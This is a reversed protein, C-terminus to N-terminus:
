FLPTFEPGINFKEDGSIVSGTLPLGLYEKTPDLPAQKEIVSAVWNAAFRPLFEPIKHESQFIVFKSAKVAAPVETWFDELVYRPIYQDSGALVLHLSKAPFMQAFSAAKWQRIGQVMRFTAELKLPQELVIPEASPYTTYILQRLFYDYLEDDTAPNFPFQIRTWAIQQKIWTDQSRLAETFPALAFVNDVRNPYLGAFALAIGGGYSLGVLNLKEPLGLELTLQNLDDVQNRYSIPGKALGFRRLTEGMGNMDYRLVGFGKKILATSMREWQHTSYTLGNLLVVTPKQGVPPSWKVYLSQGRQLRIFGDFEKTISFTNAVALSGILYLGASFLIALFNLRKLHTM